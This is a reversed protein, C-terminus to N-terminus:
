NSVLLMQRTLDVAKDKNMKQLIEAVLDDEMENFIGIIDNNDLRSLIDATDQTKMEAFYRAMDKYAAQQNQKANELNLLSTNLRDVENQLELEQEQILRESRKYEEIINELKNIESIKDALEQELEDKELIVKDIESIRSNAPKNLLKSLVEPTKIVNFFMLTYGAGALLLLVGIIIITLKLFRM